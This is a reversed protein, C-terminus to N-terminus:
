KSVEEIRNLKTQPLFLVSVCCHILLLPTPEKPHHDQRDPSETIRSTSCASLSALCMALPMRSQIHKVILRDPEDLTKSQISSAPCMWRGNWAMIGDTTSDSPEMDVPDKREDFSRSANMDRCTACIGRRQVLLLVPTAILSLWSLFTHNQYVRAGEYALHVSEGQYNDAADLLGGIRGNTVCRLM